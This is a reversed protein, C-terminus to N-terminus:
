RAEAFAVKISRIPAGTVEVLVLDGPALEYRVSEGIGPCDRGIVRGIAKLREGNEFVDVSAKQSVTVQYAGPKPVGFFTVVGSFSDAKPARLPPLFFRISPTPRLDLEM